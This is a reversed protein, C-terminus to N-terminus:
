PRSRHRSPLRQDQPRRDERRPRRPLRRRRRPHRRSRSGRPLRQDEPRGDERRPRRHLRRAHRPHRRSRPRDGRGSGSAAPPAAAPPASAPQPVWELSLIGRFVPTGFGESLGTSVGAGARFDHITYHAGLLGEVPTSRIKFFGDNILTSRAFVEPGVVLKTSAVRVGAAAGFVLATGVQGGAYSESLTKIEAGVRAAYTFYSVDGALLVHPTVTTNGDGAYSDRNGTPLSVTAGVALTAPGQYKGLVRVDADLRIDGLAAEHAPAAYTTTSTSFSHGDAYVMVPVTAGVRLRDWLVLSGGLHLFAQDRVISKRVDDTGITELVLPRYAWEGVIGFAPRLHGRLDLTDMVFWESGTTAPEFHNVAFGQATTQAFSVNSCLIAAAATSLLAFRKM